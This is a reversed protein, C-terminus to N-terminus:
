LVTDNRNELCFCCSCMKRGLIPCLYGRDWNRISDKEERSEGSCDRDDEKRVNRNLVCEASHGVLSKKCFELVETAWLELSKWMGGMFLELPGHSQHDM